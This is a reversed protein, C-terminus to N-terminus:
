IICFWMVICSYLDYWLNYQYLQNEQHPAHPQEFCTSFQFLYMSFFQADLQDNVMFRKWLPKQQPHSTTHHYQTPMEWQKSPSYHRSRWPNLNVHLIKCEEQVVAVNFNTILFPWLGLVDRNVFRSVATNDGAYHLLRQSTFVITFYQTSYWFVKNQTTYIDPCCSYKVFFTFQKLNQSAGADTAGYSHGSSMVFHGIQRLVLEM